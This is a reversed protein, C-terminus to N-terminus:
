KAAAAPISSNFMNSYVKWEGDVKRWIGIYKGRDLTNGKGDGMFFNGEEILNDEGGYLSTTEDRFEKIGFKLYQSILTAIEPRGVVAVSNPLFIKGDLTYHNVMTTSDGTVFAKAFAINKEEITKKMATADFISVTDKVSGTVSPSNNRGCGANSIIAIILLLAYLATKKM